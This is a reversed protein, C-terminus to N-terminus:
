RSPRPYFNLMPTSATCNRVRRRRRTSPIPEVPGTKRIAISVFPDKGGVVGVDFYPVMPILYAGSSTIAKLTKPSPYRERWRLHEPGSLLASSTSGTQTMPLNTEESCGASVLAVMISLAAASRSTM